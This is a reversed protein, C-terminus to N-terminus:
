AKQGQVIGGAGTNRNHDLRPLLSAIRDLVIFCLPPRRLVAPLNHWINAAM